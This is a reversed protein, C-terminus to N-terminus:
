THKIKQWITNNEKNNNYLTNSRWSNVSYLDVIIIIIIGRSKEKGKHFTAKHRFRSIGYLISKVWLLCFYDVTWRNRILSSISFFCLRLYDITEVQPCSACRDSAIYGCNRLSHRVKVSRLTILWALDNKFNETFSDRVSKWHTFFSFRTPVYSTWDYPLNPVSISRQLFLSYLAKSTFSFSPAFNFSRLEQLLRSYFVTPRAARPTLNDRLFAWDPRISALQSWCFYRVLFFAKASSDQLVNVLSALHFSRSQCAFDRLGLGGDELSCIISRRAVTEIRSGWLFPWILSKIIGYVSKPPELIRSLCFM